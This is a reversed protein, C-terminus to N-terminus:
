VSRSLFAGVLRPEVASHSSRSKSPPFSDVIGPFGVSDQLISFSIKRNLSYRVCKAIRMLNAAGRKAIETM